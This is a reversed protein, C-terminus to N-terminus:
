ALGNARAIEQHVEVVSRALRLGLVGATVACAAAVLGVALGAGSGVALAVAFAAIGLVVGTIEVGWWIGADRRGRHGEPFLDRVALYPMVLNALPILWGGVALGPSFTTRLGLLQANRTARFTWVCIGALCLWVLLGALQAVGAFLPMQFSSFRDAQEPDDLTTSVEDWFRGFILPLAILQVSTAASRALFAYGAWRATSAGKAADYRDSGSFGLGPAAAAAHATWSAGDFWRVVGPQVPDPYWGPPALDSM